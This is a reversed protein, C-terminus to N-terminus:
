NLHEAFRVILLDVGLRRSPGALDRRVEGELPQPGGGGGGPGKPPAQRLPFVTDGDARFPRDVEANVLLVVDLTDLSKAVLEVSHQAVQAHVLVVQQVPAQVQVLAHRDTGCCVLRAGDPAAGGGGRTCEVHVALGVVHVVEVHHVGAEEWADAGYVRGQGRDRVGKPDAIVDGFTQASASAEISRSAATVNSIFGTGHARACIAKVRANWMM